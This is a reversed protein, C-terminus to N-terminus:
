HEAEQFSGHGWQSQCHLSYIERIRQEICIFIYCSIVIMKICLMQHSGVDREIEEKAPVEWNTWLKAHLMVSAAEWLLAFSISHSHKNECSIFFTLDSLYHSNGLILGVLSSTGPKQSDSTCDRLFIASTSSSLELRTCICSQSRLGSM